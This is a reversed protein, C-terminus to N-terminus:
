ASARSTTLRWLEEVTNAIPHEGDWAKIFAKVVSAWRNDFAVRVIEVELRKNANDLAGRFAEQAENETRLAAVYRDLVVNGFLRAYLFDIREAIAQAAREQEAREVAARDVQRQCREVITLGAPASSM